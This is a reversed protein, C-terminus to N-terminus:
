ASHLRRPPRFIRVVFESPPLGVMPATSHRRAPPPDPHISPDNAFPVQVHGPCCVCPCGEDCPADDADNDPCQSGDRHHSSAAAMRTEPTALVVASFCTLAFLLAFLRLACLRIM